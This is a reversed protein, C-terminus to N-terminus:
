RITEVHNASSKNVSIQPLLHLKYRIPYSEPYSLVVRTKNVAVYWAFSRETTTGPAFFPATDTLTVEEEVIAGPAVAPLPGGFKRADSYMAPADEHVPLDELTNPDLAHAAGEATITRAKIEPKSQHWPAWQASVESWENVGEQTEVRYIRHRVETARGATDFTFHTENLLVTADSDKGPKVTESAQRLAEPSASFAPGDFIDAANLRAVMILLSVIVFKLPRPSLQM